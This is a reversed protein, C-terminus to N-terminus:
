VGLMSAGLMLLLLLITSTVIAAAPAWGVKSLKGPATKVGLASIAILVCWRSAETMVHAVPASVLGLSNLLVIAAFILVFWPLLTGRRGASGRDELYLKEGQAATMKKASARTESHQMALGLVLVVPALMSVRLLKVVTATDGIANSLLYGAGIVQAVDHISGGLFIGTARAGLGLATAIIPYAIMALTSMATVGIVVFLLFQSRMRREPLVASLAVAASAGCIAVAGGALAGEARTLGFWPACLIAAAIVLVVCSVVLVVPGIGLTGIQELTIRAGLLAVGWRLVTTACFDVGVQAVPQEYLFNLAIGFFLAYILAPGGYHTSVFSAALAVIVSLLAGRWADRGLEIPWSPIVSSALM